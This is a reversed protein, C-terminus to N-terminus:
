PIPNTQRGSNESGFKSQQLFTMIKPTSIVEDTCTLLM